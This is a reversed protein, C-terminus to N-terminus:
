LLREPFISALHSDDSAGTRLKALTLSVNTWTNNTRKEKKREWLITCLIQIFPSGGGGGECHINQISIVQTWHKKRTDQHWVCTIATREGILSGYRLQSSRYICWIRKRKVKVEKVGTLNQDLIKWVTLSSLLSREIPTSFISAWLRNQLRHAFEQDRHM